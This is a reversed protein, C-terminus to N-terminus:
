QSGIAVQTVSLVLNTRAKRHGEENVLFRNLRLSFRTEVCGPELRVVSRGSADGNRFRPSNVYLIQAIVRLATRRSLYISREHRLIATTQQRYYCLGFRPCYGQCSSFSFKDIYVIHM